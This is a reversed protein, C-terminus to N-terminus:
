VTSEHGAVELDSGRSDEHTDLEAWITKGGAVDRAWGWRRSLAAVILLGRGRGSESPPAGGAVPGVVSDDHVEVRLKASSSRVTVRVVPTSGYEIANTALESVVLVADAENVASDTMLLVHAVFRRFVAVNAASSPLAVSYEASLAM